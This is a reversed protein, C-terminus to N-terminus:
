PYLVFLNHKALCLRPDLHQAEIIACDPTMLDHFDGYYTTLKPQRYFFRLGLQDFLAQHIQYDSKIIMTGNPPIQPYLEHTKTFARDVRQAEQVTWHTLETIRITLFSGALWVALILGRWFPKLKSLVLSLLLTIGPLGAIIYNPYQHLPLVLFLSIGIIFWAIGLLSLSLNELLAKLKLLIASWLVLLSVLWIALHSAFNVLFKPQIHPPWLIFQYKLEEPLNFSWLLYWILSNLSNLNLQPTYTGGAPVPLIVLRLLLYGLTLSVLSVLHVKRPRVLLIALAPFIIVIEHTLLGLIFLILSLGIRGSLYINLSLFLVLTGLLLNTEALWFLSIFHTASTAYLFSTFLSVSKNQTIKAILAYVLFTNLLHVLLGFLHFYIPQPGFIRQQLWYALQIGLPRYYIASNDTFFKLLGSVPIQTTVLHLFDDQFFGYKFVPFYLFGTIVILVSTKFWM